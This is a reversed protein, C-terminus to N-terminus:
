RVGGVKQAFVELGSVGGGDAAVGKETEFVYGEGAGGGSLESGAEGFKKVVGVEEVDDM